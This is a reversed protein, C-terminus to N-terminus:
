STFLRALDNYFALIMMVALLALGIRQGLELARESVPSGKIIEAAYYLLHGGDLVPIPLLNLVGLSISILAVFSLYPMWGMQASKGAFDAITIPGSLNKWSVEGLFMRGIMKLSLVSTDWTRALARALATGVPYSVQTFMQDLVDQSLQIKVGIRGRPPDSNPVTDLTVPVTEQQGDREIRAQVTAGAHDAVYEVLDRWTQLPQDDMAVFRDGARLGAREAASDPQVEGIVPPTPPDWPTLGARALLDADGSNLDLPAFDIVAQRVDGEPTRVTIETPANELARRLLAWRMESGSQVAEDEVRLIEEGDVLGAQAALTEPVVQVRARLEETGHVFLAWYLVVALLLNALPGAAVIAIRKYVNQRNFARPLEEPAVEGEREDLMKVYGGLPIGALVWQTRDAGTHWQLLPKGFGISFRLVKVGCLRAVFYHGYEHFFVLAGLAIVFPILYDTLLSM